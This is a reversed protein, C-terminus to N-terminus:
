FLGNRFPVDLDSRRLTHNYTLQPSVLFIGYPEDKHYSHVQRAVGKAAPPLRHYIENSYSCGPGPEWNNVYSHVSTGGVKNEKEIIIVEAGARSAALAAGIGASGAGIICIDAQMQNVLRNDTCSSCYLLFLLYFLPVIRM